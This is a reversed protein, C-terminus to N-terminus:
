SPGADCCRLRAAKALPNRVQHLHGHVCHRPAPAQKPSGAEEAPVPRCVGGDPSSVPKHLGENHCSGGVLRNSHVQLSLPGGTFVLALTVDGM